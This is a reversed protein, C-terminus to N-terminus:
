CCLVSLVLINKEFFISQKSTLCLNVTCFYDNKKKKEDKEERLTM